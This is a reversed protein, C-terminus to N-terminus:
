REMEPPVKVQDSPYWVGDKLFGIGQTKGMNTDYFTKMSELVTYGLSAPEGMSVAQRVYIYDYIIERLQTSSLYPSPCVTFYLGTAGVDLLPMDFFCFIDFGIFIDAPEVYEGYYLEVLKERTPVVGHNKYFEISLKAIADTADEACTGLFLRRKKHQATREVIDDFPALLDCWPSEQFADHYNGYYRVRIDDSSYFERLLPDTALRFLGKLAIEHYGSRGLLEPGFVPIVLTDIGHEFLLRCLRIHVDVMADLYSSVTDPVDPYELRFWRRTGNVAFVCVRLDSERVCKAIVDSPWNVFEKLDPQM